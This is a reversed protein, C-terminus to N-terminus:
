TVSVKASQLPVQNTDNGRVLQAPDLGFGTGYCYLLEQTNSGSSALTLTITTANTRVASNITIETDTGGVDSIYKFGEIATTPTFDTIGTPYAITVTITTTGAGSAGSITPSDVPVSVTEGDVEAVKRIVFPANAAQGADSIHVVDTAGTEDVLPQIMTNPTLYIWSNEDALEQIADRWNDYFPDATANDSRRGPPIIFIPLEAVQARWIDFVQKWGDKLSTKSEAAVDTEGQNWVFGKLTANTNCSKHAEIAENLLVGATVGDNELWYNTANNRAYLASGGIAMNSIYNRGTTYFDDLEAIAAVEGGNTYLGEIESWGEANSQGGLAVGTDNSSLFGAGLQTFTPYGNFVVLKTVHGYMYGFFKNSRGLWLTDLNTSIMTNGTDRVFRQGHSEFVDITGDSKYLMGCAFVDDQLPVGVNESYQSAGGAVYTGTVRSTDNPIIRTSLRNNAADATVAALFYGQEISQFLKQPRVLAVIAGNDNNWFSASDLNDYRIEDRNRTAAAASSSLIESTPEKFEEMQFLVFYVTRNANAQIRLQRTSANPSANELTYKQMSTGSFSTVVGGGIIDMQGATFTESTAVWISACHTNTNGTVGDITATANGAGASLQYVNGNTCVQDLGADALLTSPDSVVTLSAGTGSVTFATEDGSVPNFNVAECKNTSSNEILIGLPNGSADHDFRGTNAAAQQLDGNSDTYTGATGSRTASWGSPLSSTFDFSEFTPASSGSGLGVPNTVPNTAVYSFPSTFM